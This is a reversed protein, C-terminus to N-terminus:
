RNRRSGHGNGNSGNAPVYALEHDALVVQIERNPDHAGLDLVFDKVWGGKGSRDEHRGDHRDGHRDEDRDDHRDWDIVPKCPSPAPAIPTLATLREGHHQDTVKDRPRGTGTAFFWDTGAAGTLVDEVGDDLVTADTLRVGDVGKTLHAVRREYSDKGTWEHFLTCLAQPDDDYRTTGAILLDDGSGAVLRDAGTGGILVDRGSGGILKDDGEGGLLLAAGAGAKLRDDGAGGRLEIVNRLSGAVEIDDNGAFGEVIIRGTHAFVGQSVGNIWVEVGKPRHGHGGKDHDDEDYDHGRGHRNDDEHEGDRDRGNDGCKPKEPGPVEAPVIRIKDNGATGTVLLALQGPECPDAVLRAGATEAEVLVVALWATGEGVDDDSVTLTVTYTGATAFAHSVGLAGADTTPHFGIVTGDGFDWSVAHTDLTGPDTFSGAFALAAGRVGHDPGALAATPAVNSVTTSASAAVSGDDDDTLSVGIPYLDSPTGTPNDDLYQHTLTFTRVDAGLLVTQAPGEGWDVVLTYTDLAGPDTLSGTLTVVDNESISPTASIATVVPAVNTVTLALTDLAAPGDDDVLTVHLTYIGNDAYAHSGSITGSVGLPDAVASVLGAEVTGDGWDITATHTDGTGAGSFTAAVSVPAGEDATQDVGAEVVPAWGILQVQEISLLTDTGVGDAAEILTDTGAGGDLIDDGLGGTLSDDGLGGLLSDTGAGGVLSDDGAGGDLTVPGTFAAADLTNNGAGGTLQAQELSILTDTGLGVLSTDTLVFDVDGAEILTDTGDGGNLTDDGLGGTLSDNGTGGLLSDNGSGGVLSDNGAGGALTVPGTFGSANLTNASTGGTLSAEEISLLTDTGLGLLMGNTLTFNVDATEIVRDTGTGGDLTDDGLGGTLSDDGLGGLLSDNGSGGVLSDNGAGGTLTVAGTFASADLINAGAGGTLSAEEISLLVDTGLNVLLGDTLTFNVDATEVVRDTGDGGNLTDDGLGGTLSDEGLGGLLSDNGSGGV